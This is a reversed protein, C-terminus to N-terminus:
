SFGPQGDQWSALSNRESRPIVTSRRGLSVCGISAAPACSIARRARRSSTLAPRSVSEKSAVDFGILSASM